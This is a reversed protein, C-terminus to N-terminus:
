AKTIRRKCVVTDDESGRYASNEILAKKAWSKINSPIYHQPPEINELEEAEKESPKPPLIVKEQKGFVFSYITTGSQEMEMFDCSFFRYAIGNIQVLYIKEQKAV